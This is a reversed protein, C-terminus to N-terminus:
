KSISIIIIIKETIVEKDPKSIFKIEFFCKLPIVPSQRPAKFSIVRNNNSRANTTTSFREM